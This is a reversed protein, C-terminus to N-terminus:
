ERDTRNSNLMCYFPFSKDTAFTESACGICPAGAKICTNAGNNWYRTTCDAYSGAGLCGLKFLCGEDSFHKAFVQREYDPFRPCQDHILKNFFMKPRGKEDLPPIGFGLIHVLTGVIWDPHSPCGPLLITPKNIAKIKLFNPLSDAGTPNNEASPIGGFSACSGIALIAKAGSAAKEVLDTMKEHGMMCAKPMGVPLSGELALFYGGGEITTHVTEMAMEGTATSLTSHFILSIYRTLLRVPDPEVTNLLSVSCGSCSQAQLWLVPPTGASLKELGSALGPISGASLGMLAALRTGLTIFERRTFDSM